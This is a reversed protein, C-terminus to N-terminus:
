RGAGYQRTCDFRGVECADDIPRREVRMGLRIDGTSFKVSIERSNMDRVTQKVEGWAEKVAKKGFALMETMNNYLDAEADFSGLSSAGVRARGTNEQLSSSTSLLPQSPRYEAAYRVPPTQHQQPPQERCSRRAAIAPSTKLAQSKALSDSPSHEPASLPVNDFNGDVLSHQLEKEQTDDQDREETAFLRLPDGASVGVETTPIITTPLLAPTASVTSARSANAVKGSYPATRPVTHGEVREKEGESGDFLGMATNNSMRSSNAFPGAPPATIENLITATRQSSNAGPRQVESISAPRAAMAEDIARLAETAEANPSLRGWADEHSASTEAVGRAEFIAAGLTADFIAATKEGISISAGDDDGSSSSAAAELQKLFAEADMGDDNSVDGPDEFVDDDQFDIGLLAATDAASRAANVGDVPIMPNTDIKNLDLFLQDISPYSKDYLFLM